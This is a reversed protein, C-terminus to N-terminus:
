RDQYVLLSGNVLCRWSTVGWSRFAQLLLSSPVCVVTELSSDLSAGISLHQAFLLSLSSVALLPLTCAMADKVKSAARMSHLMAASIRRQHDTARLGGAEAWAGGDAAKLLRASGHLEVSSRCYCRCSSILIRCIGNFLFIENLLLSWWVLLCSCHNAIM